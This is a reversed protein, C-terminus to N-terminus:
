WPLGRVLVPTTIERTALLRVPRPLAVVRGAPQEILVDEEVVSFGLSDYFGFLPPLSFLLLVGPSWYQTAVSLATDVVLRAYGRRRWPSGTRIGGLGVGKLAQPDGTASTYQIERGPLLGCESVVDGGVQLSVKSSAALGVIGPGWRQFPVQRPEAASLNAALTYNDSM